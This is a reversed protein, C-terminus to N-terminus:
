AHRRQGNFQRVQEAADQVLQMAPYKMRAELHEAQWLEIDLQMDQETAVM